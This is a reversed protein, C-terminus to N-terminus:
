RDGEDDDDGEDIPPEWIPGWEARADDWASWLDFTSAQLARYSEWGARASRQMDYVQARLMSATDDDFPQRRLMEEDIFRLPADRTATLDAILREQKRLEDVLRLLDDVLSM